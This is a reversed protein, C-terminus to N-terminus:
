AYVIGSYGVFTSGPTREYSSSYGLLESQTAGLRRAAEIAAAAAGPCCANHSALAEKVVGASDMALMKDIVQKDNEDRVWKYANRGSGAPTFGFNAGYHTLDTSGVIKLRIGLHGAESVVTRAIEKASRDAPPGITLVMSDKFFYKVFPMQLEITNEPAFADPTEVQFHHKLAVKRGLEEAVAIDGLPTQWAGENMIVPPVGAPMHMGFIVIVDPKQVDPSKSLAHFVRCALEGSFHWGAHPVIGAVPEGKLRTQMSERNLFSTIEKLCENKDGPYWSGAFVPKRVKM